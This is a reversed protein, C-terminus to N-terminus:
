QFMQQVGAVQQVRVVQQLVQQVGVKEASQAGAPNQVGTPQVKYKCSKKGTSPTSKKTKPKGKTSPPETKKPNYTQVQGNKVYKLEYVKSVETVKANGNSPGQIAMKEGEQDDLRNVTTKGQEEDVEFTTLIPELKVNSAMIEIAQNNVNQEAPTNGMENKPSNIDRSKPTRLEEIITVPIKSRRPRTYNELKQEKCEKGAKPIKRGKRKPNPAKGEVM